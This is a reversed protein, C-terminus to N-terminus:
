AAHHVKDVLILVERVTTRKQEAMGEALGEQLDKVKVPAACNVDDTDM